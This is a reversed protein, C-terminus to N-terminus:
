TASKTPLPRGIRSAYGQAFNLHTQRIAPDSTRDAAERCERERRVYYDYQNEQPM